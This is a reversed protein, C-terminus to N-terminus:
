VLRGRVRQFGCEGVATGRTTILINIAKGAFAVGDQRSHDFQSPPLYKLEAEHFSLPQRSPEDKSAGIKATGPERPNRVTCTVNQAGGLRNLKKLHTMYSITAEVKLCVLCADDM